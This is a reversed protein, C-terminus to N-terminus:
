RAVSASNHTAHAANSVFSSEVRDTFHFFIKFENQAACFNFNRKGCCAPDNELTELTQCFLNKTEKLRKLTRDLKGQHECYAVYIQAFFFNKTFQFTFVEDGDRRVNFYKEAHKYVSHSLGLLM